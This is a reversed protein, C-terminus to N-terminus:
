ALVLAAARHAAVPTRSLSWLVGAFVAPVIMAASGLHAPLIAPVMVAALLLLYPISAFDASDRARHAIIALVAGTVMPLDYDFAYPTGLITALPLVAQAEIDRRTRVRWLALLGALMGLGQILHSTMADGGLRSVAATVTPMLDLLSEHGNALTMAQSAMFDFWARWIAFGFACTTALSLVAISLAAGAMARGHRGFLLVFPVMLALQPKYAVGALLMGAVFPRTWLLRLGGQMLAATLFGNQGLLCCVASSPALLFIAPLPRQWRWAGSAAAYASGTLVLWAIRAVGYPLAGLPQLVLLIWPPYYFPYHGGNAPMGLQTQFAFLRAADYITAPAHHLGYRGFSWFGFFDPFLIDPSSAMRIIWLAPQLACAVLLVTLIRRHPDGREM